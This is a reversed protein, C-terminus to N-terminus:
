PRLELTTRAARKVAQDSFPLPALQQALWLPAADRYHPSGPEGSEGQPIVIGGADWNGVDWVARFSQTVTPTQAHPSYADGLGPFPTGNWASLGFAALPHLAIREGAASWPADLQNRGRLFALADRTADVLFGDFDDRPVWGHPRERLMRLVAEFAEGANDYLYRKGLAPAMHLRVLRAVASLRLAWAYTAGRSGSGFRGDFAALAAQARLMDPALGRARRLAQAAARALEGEPLSAVDAQVSAFTGVGYPRRALDRTIEAARYPPAFTATLRYPYGSGYTRNNATVAFADRAPAVHPLEAFPVTRVAPAAGRTGDREALGWADDLPIEGALAYGAIGRDDAVVFNQPPGPYGALVAFAQAASGARDLGDFTAFGSRRDLDATWAAALKVPGEDEFVFGHRTRLYDRTVTPGFRVGFREIRHEASVWAGNTRYRDSSASEFRERYVRVTTVTGNTAGWALHENHGLIVGPTGPLTAGAVHLGPAALDVLYWAGPMNLDLHPDNALLARHTATLGAGAVMDNSGLGERSRATAAAALPSPDGAYRVSLPPLPPVPAPRRPALPVDYRPDTISFLGDRAGPGVAAIVDARAAVANWDDTLSLVTAFGAILSDRATWPEPRYGLLRFEPPLPRAAIAANVGGAFAELLGRQRATLARMEGAVIGGIDYARAAEDRRLALAGFVEALRGTVSRRNLDLQFLREAGQLYGEAFYADAESGARVHPVGRADRLIEVPASLGAARVTGVPERGGSWVGDLVYLAFIACVLLVGGAAAALALLARRGM